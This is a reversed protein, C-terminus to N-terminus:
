PSLVTITTAVPTISSECDLLSDPCEKVVYEISVRDGEQLGSVGGVSAPEVVTDPTTEFGSAPTNESCRVSVVNPGLSEPSLLEGETCFLSLDADIVRVGDTEPDLGVTQLLRGNPCCGGSFEAYAGLDFTATDPGLELGADFTEYGITVEGDTMTFVQHREVPCNSAGCNTRTVVLAEREDDLAFSQAQVGQTLSPSHKKGGPGAEEGGADDELYASTWGAADYAFIEVRFLCPSPAGGLVTNDPCEEPATEGEASATHSIIVLQGTDSGDLSVDLTQDLVAGSPILTEPDPREIESTPEVTATAEPESTATPAIAQNDDDGCAVVLLAFLLSLVVSFRM